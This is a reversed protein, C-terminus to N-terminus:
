RRSASAVIRTLADFERAAERDGNMYRTGWAHDTKLEAIRSSAQEVTMTGPNGGGGNSVFRAEGMAEGAKRFIEMTKAYGVTKELTAVEEPTVGLRAAGQKAVFMNAEINKGWNVALAERETALKATADALDAAKTGDLYKVVAKAIEPARDKPTGAAAIAPRLADQIAAPLDTGDALKVGSFDYDKADAPAGLRQWVKAWEPSNADKPLRVLEDPPAGVFKQTERQAKASELVAQFMPMKDLGRTQIWGKTEDDLAAYGPDASLLAPATDTM